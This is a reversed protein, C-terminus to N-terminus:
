TDPDSSPRTIIRFILLLLNNGCGLGGDGGFDSHLRQMALLAICAAVGRRALADSFTNYM